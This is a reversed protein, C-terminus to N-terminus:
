TGNLRAVFECSTGVYVSFYQTSLLSPVLVLLSLPPIVTVTVTATVSRLLALDTLSYGPSPRLTQELTVASKSRRKVKHGLMLPPISHIVTLHSRTNLLPSCSCSPPLDRLSSVPPLPREVEVQDRPSLRDRLGCGNQKDAHHGGCMCSGLRGM